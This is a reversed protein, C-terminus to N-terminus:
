PDSCRNAFVLHPRGFWPAPMSGDERALPSTIVIVARAPPCSCRNRLCSSRRPLVHRWCENNLAKASPGPKTRASTAPEMNQGSVGDRRSRDNAGGVSRDALVSHARSVAPKCPMTDTSLDCGSLTLEFVVADAVEASSWDQDAAGHYEAIIGVRQKEPSDVTVPAMGHLCLPILKTSASDISGGTM